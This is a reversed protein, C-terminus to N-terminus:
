RVVSRMQKDFQQRSQCHEYICGLAYTIKATLDIMEDHPIQCIHEEAGYWVHTARSTRWLSYGQLCFDRLDAPVWALPLKEGVPYKSM